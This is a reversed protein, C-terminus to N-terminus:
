APRARRPPRIPGDQVHYRIGPASRDDQAPPTRRGTLAWVVAERWEIEGVGIYAKFCASAARLTAEVDPSGAGRRRLEETARVLARLRDEEGDPDAGGELLGRLSADGETWREWIPLLEEHCFALRAERWASEDRM